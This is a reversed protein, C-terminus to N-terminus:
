FIESHFPVSKINCQSVSIFWLQAPCLLLYLGEIQSALDTAVAMKVSLFVSASMLSLFGKIDLFHDALSASFGVSCIDM